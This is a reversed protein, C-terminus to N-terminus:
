IKAAQLRMEALTPNSSLKKADTVITRGPLKADTKDDANNRKLYPSVGEELLKDITVPDNGNFKDKPVGNVIEQVKINGSEDVSLVNKQKLDLLLVNTIPEKLKAHEPAFEFKSIKTKLAMDLFIQGKEEDFKKQLTNRETEREANIVKIKEVLESNQKNLEKVEEEKSPNSKKVKEVKNLIAQQLLKIKSKTDKETSIKEADFVDLDPLLATIQADVGDYVEARIKGGIKPDSLARDRTLFNDQIANFVQDPIEYEPVTETFKIYDESDIKGQEKLKTYFEKSKM